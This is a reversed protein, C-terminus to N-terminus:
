HHAKKAAPAPKSSSEDQRQNLRAQLALVEKLLKDREANGGESAVVKRPHAADIELQKNNQNKEMIEAAENKSRLRILSMRREEHPNWPWYQNMDVELEARDRVEPNWDLYRWVGLQGELHKITLRQMIAERALVPKFKELLAALDDLRKEQVPRRYQAQLAEIKSEDRETTNVALSDYRIRKESVVERDVSNAYEAAWDIKPLPADPLGAEQRRKKFAAYLSKVEAQRKLINFNTEDRATYVCWKEIQEVNIKGEDKHYSWLGHRLCREMLTLKDMPQDDTAKKRLKEAGGLLTEIEKEIQEVTATSTRTYAAPIAGKFRKILNLAINTNKAVQKDKPLKPSLKPFHLVPATGSLSRAGAVVPTVAVRRMRKSALDKVRLVFLSSLSSIATTKKLFFKITKKKKKQSRPLLVVICCLAVSERSERAEM